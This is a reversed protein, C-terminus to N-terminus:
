TASRSQGTNTAAQRAVERGRRWCYYWAHPLRRLVHRDVARAARYVQRNAGWSMRERGFWALQMWRYARTWCAEQDIEPPVAFNRRVFDLVRYEEVMIQGNRVTANRVSNAHYRFYNLPQPVYALDGITLIRLWTVWDGCIRMGEEARGARIFVDRRFLVASANPITCRFILRRMAEERGDAIFPERWCGGDAADDGPLLTSAVVGDADVCHSRCYALGVKPHADLLSVLTELLRPDAYDDAEAIWVYRGRALDVGKNWQKFPVGTNVQNCEVRVRPDGAYAAFVKPSDDTSADDLYIVEFDQFTQAFITDMRQALYRAHNFNPVIVSVTPAMRDTRPPPTLGAAPTGAAIGSDPGPGDPPGLTRPPATTM